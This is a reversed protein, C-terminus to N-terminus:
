ETVGDSERGHVALLEENKESEDNDDAARAQEDVLLALAVPLLGRGAAALLEGGLEVHVGDGGDADLGARALQVEGLLAVSPDHLLAPIVRRVEVADGVEDALESVHLDHLGLLDARRLM